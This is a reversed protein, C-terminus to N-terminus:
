VKPRTRPSFVALSLIPLRPLFGAVAATYASGISRGSWEPTKYKFYEAATAWEAIGPIPRWDESREGYAWRGGVILIPPARYLDLIADELTEDTAAIEGEEYAYALPWYYSPLAPWDMRGPGPLPFWFGAFAREVAGMGICRSELSAERNANGQNQATHHFTVGRKAGIAWQMLGTGWHILQIDGMNIGVKTWDAVILTSVDVVTYLSWFTGWDRGWWPLDEPAAGELEEPNCDEGTVQEYAECLLRIVEAEDYPVPIRETYGIQFDM